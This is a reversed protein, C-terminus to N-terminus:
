IKENAYLLFSKLFRLIQGMSKYGFVGVFVFYCICVGSVHSVFVHVCIAICSANSVHIYVVALHMLCMSLYVYALYIYVCLSTSM